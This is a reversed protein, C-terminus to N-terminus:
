DNRTQAIRLEGEMAKYDMPDPVLGARLRANQDEYESDTVPRRGGLFVAKGGPVGYYHAAETIAKIAEPDNLRAPINMVNGDSDEVRRGDETYWVYVGYEHENVLSVKSKNVNM